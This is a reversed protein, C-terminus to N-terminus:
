HINLQSFMTTKDWYGRQTLIKGNVVEFLECGRMTFRSNNPQHGAFEGKMTGSFEWEIAVWDGNAVINEAKVHIDPFAQFIKVYTARMAERGQVPKLYPMQLNTVNVDYLAAAEDPNHSNYANVWNIAVQEPTNTSM